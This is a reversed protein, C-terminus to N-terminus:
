MYIKEQGTEQEERRVAPYGRQEVCRGGEGERSVVRSYKYSALLFAECHVQSEKGPAQYTMPPHTGGRVEGAHLCGHTRSHLETFQTSM